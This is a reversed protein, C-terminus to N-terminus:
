VTNELIDRVQAAPGLRFDPTGIAPLFNNDTDDRVTAALDVLARELHESKYTDRYGPLKGLELEPM